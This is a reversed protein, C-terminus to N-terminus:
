GGLSHSNNIQVHLLFMKLFIEVENLHRFRIFVSFNIKIKLPVFKKFKELKYKLVVITINIECKSFFVIFTFRGATITLWIGLLIRNLILHHTFYLSFSCYVIKM